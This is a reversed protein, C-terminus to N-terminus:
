SREGIGRTPSPWPWPAWFGPRTVQGISRTATATAPKSSRECVCPSSCPSTWSRPGCAAPEPSLRRGRDGTAQAVTGVRRSLGDCVELPKHRLETIDQVGAQVKLDSQFAALESAKYAADISGLAIPDPIIFEVVKAVPQAARRFLEGFPNPFQAKWAAIKEVQREEYDTLTKEKKKKELRTGMSDLGKQFPPRAHRAHEAPGSTLRGVDLIPFTCTCIRHWSSGTPVQSAFPGTRPRLLAKEMSRISEVNRAVRDSVGQFQWASRPMRM